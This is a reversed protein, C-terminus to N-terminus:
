EKKLLKPLIATSALVVLAVVAVVIIWTKMNSEGTNALAVNAQMPGMAFAQVAAILVGGFMLVALFLAIIRTFVKTNKGSM